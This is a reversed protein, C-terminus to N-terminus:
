TILSVQSIALLSNSALTMVIHRMKEPKKLDLHLREENSVYCNYTM